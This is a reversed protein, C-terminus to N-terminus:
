ERAVQAGDLRSARLVHGGGLERPKQVAETVAVRRPGANGDVPDDV